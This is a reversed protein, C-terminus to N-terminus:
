AGRTKDSHSESQELLVDESFVSAMPVPNEQKSLEYLINDNIEMSIKNWNRKVQEPSIEPTLFTFPLQEEKTKSYM